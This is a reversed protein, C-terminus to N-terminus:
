DGKGKMSGIHRDMEANIEAIRDANSPPTSAGAYYMREGNPLVAAVKLEEAQNAASVAHGMVESFQMGAANAIEATAVQLARETTEIAATLEEIEERLGPNTLEVAKEMMLDRTAQSVGSLVLPAELIAAVLEPHKDPEAQAMALMAARKSPEMTKLERRMESRVMAAAADTKDVQFPKASDMKRAMEARATRIARLAQATEKAAENKVWEAAKARRGVDTLNPDKALAGKYASAKEAASRAAHYSNQLFKLPVTNDRFTWRGVFKGNVMFKPQDNM